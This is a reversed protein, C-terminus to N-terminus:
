KIKNIKVIVKNNKVELIKNCYQLLDKKHTCIIIIKKEFKKFLFDLIKNETKQDLANTSEDLILIDPDRFIVRALGIRQIQGGSLRSGRDGISSLTSENILQNNINLTELILKIKLDEDDTLIEESMRVNSYISSDSLYISQAVYGIKNRFDKSLYHQDSNNVKISGSSPILLTAIINLLTTKGSGTEGIVAIKDGMDIQFNLQSLTPAAQNKYSFVVDDFKISNLTIKKSKEIEFSENFNDPSEDTSMLIQHVVHCAPVNFKLAQLSRILSTAAPLLKICAFAFVGFLVTIEGLSYASNIILYLFYGFFVLVGFFEIVPATFALAIDRFINAYALKKCHLFFDEAFFKKKNFLIIEKIGGIVENLKKFATASEEQRVVAWKKFESSSIKVIFGSILLLFLIVYLSHMNYIILFLCLFIIFVTQTILTILNGILGTSFLTTESTVNRMLFSPHNELFFIYDKNLYKKLVRTTLSVNLNNVFRTNWWNYYLVFLTKILYTLLFFSILLFIFQNNTLKELSPFYDYIFNNKSGNSTFQLIPIILGIGLVELISRVTLLCTAFVFNIKDEKTLIELIKKILDKL